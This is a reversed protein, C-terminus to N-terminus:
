PSRRKSYTSSPTSSSWSRSKESTNPSRPSLRTEIAVLGLARAILRMVHDPQDISGLSLFFVGDRFMGQSRAAAEAAVRTKGIGGPGTLTLLRISRDGFANILLDVEHERGILRTPQPPVTAFLNRMQDSFSLSPDSRISGVRRRALAFFDPRDEEDVDLAEALREATDRYVSRRLGREIDSVTRVSIGAKEALEEQTLGVSVRLRRVLPALGPTTTMDRYETM